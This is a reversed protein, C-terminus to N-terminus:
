GWSDVTLASFAEGRRCFMGVVPTPLVFDFGNTMSSQGGKSMVAMKLGAEGRRKKSNNITKRRVCKKM